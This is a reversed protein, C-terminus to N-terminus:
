SKREAVWHEIMDLKERINAILADIGEIDTNEVLGINEADTLKGLVNKLQNRLYKANKQENQLGKQEEIVQSVIAGLNIDTENIASAIEGYEDIQPQNWGFLDWDHNEPKRRSEEIHDSIAEEEKLASAISDLNEAVSQFVKYARDTYDNSALLRFCIAEYMLKKGPDQIKKRCDVMTGFAFEDNDVLSWQKKKGISELFHNAYDLSETLKEVNKVTTSYSDAIAKFSVGSDLEEKMMTAKTHWKYEAKITRKIQLNKEINRIETEDCDSPLVALDVYEFHSYKNPDKKYLDRWVCLRRNGNVVVGTETVLIPETQENKTNEFEKRLDADEVLQLLIEHQAKQAPVSEPDKKFLDRNVDPHMELYQEQYTKTRGNEIRYVPFGIRVKIEPLKCQRGKVKVPSSITETSKGCLKAIEAKRKMIPAGFEYTFEKENNM